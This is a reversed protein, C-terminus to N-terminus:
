KEEDKWINLTEYSVAGIGSILLVINVILLIQGLHFVETAALVIFGVHEIHPTKTYVKHIPKTVKRILPTKNNM